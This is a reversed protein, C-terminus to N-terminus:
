ATRRWCSRSSPPPATTSAPWCARSSRSSRSRRTRARRVPQRVRLRDRRRRGRDHERARERARLIDNSTLVAPHDMDYGPLGSPETGVCVVLHDYPYREDGVVVADGDVRGEGRVVNVGKRKAAGEVGQRMKLVVDEKRSMMKTFDFSVEPVVLGYEDARRVRRLLDATALLAKTPICGWNLCTGGLEAREIM